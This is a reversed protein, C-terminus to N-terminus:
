NSTPIETEEELVGCHLAEVADLDYGDADNAFLAVNSIDTLRVFRAYPIGASEIDIVADRTACAIM